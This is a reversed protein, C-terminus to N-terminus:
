VFRKKVGVVALGCVAALLITAPEPVATADVRINDVNIRGGAGRRIFVVVNGAPAVAGTTFTAVQGLAGSGITQLLSADRFVNYQEDGDPNGSGPWVGQIDMFGVTGLDTGIADSSYLGFEATSHTFGGRHASALDVTYKTNPAFAVGLDQYISVNDNDLGLYQSGDGGSMGTAAIDELFANAGPNGSWDDPPALVYSGNAGPSEFSYNAIPISAAGAVSVLLASLALSAVAGRCARIYWTKRM